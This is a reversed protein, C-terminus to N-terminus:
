KKKKDDKKKVKKKKGSSSDSSDDSSSSSSSSRKRKKGKKAAKAAKKAAKAALMKELAREKQAAKISADQMFFPIDEDSDAGTEFRKDAMKLKKQQKRLEKARRKNLKKAHKREEEENDSEAYTQKTGKCNLIDYYLEKVKAAAASNGEEDLSAM